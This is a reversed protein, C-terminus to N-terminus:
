KNFLLEYENKYMLKYDVSIKGKFYDYINIGLQRKAESVSRYERIYESNLSLQIIPRCSDLCNKISEEKGNYNCLGSKTAKNLYDIIKNYKLKTISIIDKISNGNNWLDSIDLIISSLSFMDVNEWKIIKLDFLDNLKSKIINRKIYELNSKLCDVRIVEIGNERALKDKYDDIEKTQKREEESKGNLSNENGHGLGGDMELIYEKDDLEFYFDYRKPKIWDPSYQYIFKINLLTLLNFAIKEPYSIKDGCRPCSFGYKVIYYIRYEKEYGCNPCIFIQLKTSSNDLRLGAKKNKLLRAIEPNTYWLNIYLGINKAFCVYCGEGNKLKTENIEDIYGDILCEYKYGKIQKKNRENRIYIQELIKIKGGYRTEIIEGVNYKYESINDIKFIIGLRCNIFDYKGISYIDSNYEINMKNNDYDIIKINGKIGDYIFNIEYGISEKWIIKGQRKGKNYKPLDDLFVKRM